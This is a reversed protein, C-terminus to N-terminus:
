KPEFENLLKLYKDHLEQSILSYSLFDMKGENKIVKDVEDLYFHEPTALFLYSPNWSEKMKHAMKLNDEFTPNKRYKTEVLHVRKTKQAIIVFDPSAKIKELAENAEPIGKYRSLEPVINEYGFKIVTFGGAERFMLEFVVEAIRGKILNHEWNNTM